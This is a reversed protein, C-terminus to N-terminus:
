RTQIDTWKGLATQIRFVERQVSKRFSIFSCKWGRRVAETCRFRKCPARFMSFCENHRQWNHRHDGFGWVIQVEYFTESYFLSMVFPQLSAHAATLAGMHVHMFVWSCGWPYLRMFFRAVGFFRHRRSNDIHPSRSIQLIRSLLNHAFKHVTWILM